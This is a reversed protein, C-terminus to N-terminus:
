MNARVGCIFPPTAISAVLGSRRAVGNSCAVHWLLCCQSCVFSDAHALPRDLLPQLAACWACPDTGFPVLMPESFCFAEQLRRFLLVWALIEFRVTRAYEAPIRSILIRAGDFSRPPVFGPIQWILRNYQDLKMVRAMLHAMDTWRVIQILPGGEGEVAVLSLDDVRAPSQSHEDALVQARVAATRHDQM